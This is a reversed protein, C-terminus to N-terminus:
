TRPKPRVGAPRDPPPRPKLACGDLCLPPSPLLNACPRWSPSGTPSPRDVRRTPFPSGRRLLNACPRWSPESSRGDVQPCGSPRPRLEVAPREAGLRKSSPSLLPAAPPDSLLRASCARLTAFRGDRPRWGARPVCGRPEWGALPVCRVAHRFVSCAVAPRFQPPTARRPIPSSFLSSASM